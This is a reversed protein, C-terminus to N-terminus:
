NDLRIKIMEGNELEFMMSFSRLVPVNEYLGCSPGSGSQSVQYIYSNNSWSFVEGDFAEISLHYKKNIELEFQEANPKFEVTAQEGAALPIGNSPFAIGNKTWNNTDIQSFFSYILDTRAENEFM